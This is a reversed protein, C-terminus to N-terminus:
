SKSFSPTNSPWRRLSNRAIPSSSPAGVAVIEADGAGEPTAGAGSAERLAWLLSERQEQKPPGNPNSLLWALANDPSWGFLGDVQEQVAPRDREPWEGKVGRELGWAALSLLHMHHAQPNARAEKLLKLAARNVQDENANM